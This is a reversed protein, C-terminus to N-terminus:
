DYVIKSEPHTEVRSICVYSVVTWTIADRCEFVIAEDLVVMRRVVAGRRGDTQINADPKMHEAADSSRHSGLALEQLLAKSVRGHYASLPRFSVDTGVVALPASRAAEQRVGGSFQGRVNAGSSAVGPLVLILMIPMSLKM